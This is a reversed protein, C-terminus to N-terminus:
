RESRTTQSRRSSRKWRRECRCCARLAHSSLSSLPGYTLLVLHAILDPSHPCVPRPRTPPPPAHKHSHVKKVESLLQDREARMEDLRGHAVSVRAAMKEDQQGGYWEYFAFALDTKLLRNGVQRLRKMAYTKAEWLETWASFGAALSQNMVRRVSQRRLMEVREEKEKAERAELLAEAEAQGGGLVAVREMLGLRVEEANALRKEYEQRQLELQADLERKAAEMQKANAKQLALKKSWRYAEAERAWFEYAMALEPSRFKNGVERLKGYAYVKASWFAYWASWGNSLDQNLMRRTVQRRMLEVRAEKEEERRLKDVEEASGTLEVRLRELAVEHEMKMDKMKVKYEAHLEAMATSMGTNTGALSELQAQLRAEEAQRKEALWERVLWNFANALEPARLKNAIKRLMSMAYTKSRWFEYWSSWGSTLGANLARRVIQRRLLEVREEKEKALQQQRLQEIGEVDGGLASVKERLESREDAM